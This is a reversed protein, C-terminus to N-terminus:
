RGWVKRTGGGDPPPKKVSAENSASPPDQAADALKWYEAARAYHRARAESTLALKAM